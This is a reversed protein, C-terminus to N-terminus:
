STPNRSSNVSDSKERPNPCPGKWYQKNVVGPLPIKAFKKKILLPIIIMTLMELLEFSSNKSLWFKRIKRVQYPDVHASYV